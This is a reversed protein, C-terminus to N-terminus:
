LISEGHASLLKILSAIFLITLNHALKLRWYFVSQNISLLIKKFRKDDLYAQMIRCDNIDKTGNRNKKM